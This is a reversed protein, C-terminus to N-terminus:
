LSIIRTALMDTEEKDHSTFIVLRNKYEEKIFEIIDAKLGIDLGKFAEDLLLIPADYCIARCLAVRRKMGGSLESPYKDLADGLGFRRLCEEAKEKDSVCAVNELATYWELLVDDQFVLSIKTDKQKIIEGQYNKELGAIIRLLTTKGKGSVGSINVREGKEFACTLNDIIKKDGYSFSLNNIKLM